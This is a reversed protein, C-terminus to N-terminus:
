EGARWFLLNSCLHVGVSCLVCLAVSSAVYVTRM